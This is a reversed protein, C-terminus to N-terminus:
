PGNITILNWGTSKKEPIQCHVQLTYKLGKRQTTFMLSFTHMEGWVESQKMQLGLETRPLELIGQFPTFLLTSEHARTNLLFCNDFLLLFLFQEFEEQKIKLNWRMEASKKQTIGSFTRTPPMRIGCNSTILVRGQKKMIGHALGQEREVMNPCSLAGFLIGASVPIVLPNHRFSHLPTREGRKMKTNARQKYISWVM